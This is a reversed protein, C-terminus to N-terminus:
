QYEMIYVRYQEIKIQKHFCSQMIKACEVCVFHNKRTLRVIPRIQLHSARYKEIVLFDNAGFFM